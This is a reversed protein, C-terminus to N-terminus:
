STSFTFSYIRFISSDSKSFSYFILSILITVSLLWAVQSRTNFLLTISIILLLTTPLTVREQLNV